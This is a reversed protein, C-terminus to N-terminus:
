KFPEGKTQRAKQRRINKSKFIQRLSDGSKYYTLYSFRLNGTFGKEKSILYIYSNDLLKLGQIYEKYEKVNLESLTAPYEFQQCTKYDTNSIVLKCM